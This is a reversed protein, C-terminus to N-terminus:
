KEKKTSKKETELKTPETLDFDVSADSEDGSEKDNKKPSKSKRKLPQASEKDDSDYQSGLTKDEAEEEEAKKEEVFEEEDDENKKSKKKPSLKTTKGNKATQKGKKPSHSRRKPPAEEENEEEDSIEEEKSSKEEEEDSSAKRKKPSKTKKTSEKVESKIEFKNVDAAKHLKESETIFDPTVISLGLEKATKLNKETGNHFILINAAASVKV